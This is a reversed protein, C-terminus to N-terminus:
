VSVVDRPPWFPVSQAPSFTSSFPTTRYKSRDERHYVSIKNKPLIAHPASYAACPLAPLCQQHVHVLLGPINFDRSYKAVIVLCCGPWSSM